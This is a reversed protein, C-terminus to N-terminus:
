KTLNRMPILTHADHPGVSCKQTMKSRCDEERSSHFAKLPPAICCQMTKSVKLPARLHSCRKIISQSRSFCGPQKEAEQAPIDHSECNTTEETLTGAELAHRPFHDLLRHPMKMEITLANGEDNRMTSTSAKRLCCNCSFQSGSNFSSTEIYKNGMIAKGSTFDYNKSQDSGYESSSQSEHHMHRSCSFLIFPPKKMKPYKITSACQELKIRIEVNCGLISQLVNAILKWSMEAKNIHEPHDFELEVLAMGQNFCISSLKGRKRLFQKLSNSKCIAIAKQWITELTEKGDQMELDHLDNYHCTCTVFHKMSDSKSSASYSDGDAGDRVQLTEDNLELDNADLSSCGESSLQLLAVTLWTVQSKSTQLQRETESLIKLAQNLQQLSAESNHREFFKRRVESSDEQFKRALIDVIINALQSILQMPDIRSRMLERARRITNSNDFSLALDLLDLLEDDSVIGILEYVLPMSIRKELLSLQDLMMEADRLSGNSKAAILDLAVREFELGEELCIKELKNAIDVEKIKSFHCRKSWSVASRPLKDLDPTTMVFVVHQPLYELNDLLTKWTDGRLLQCEDIIFVKYQSSIPHVVANKILSRFRDKRNIRLSDVKKVDEFRGTFFLVCEQCLGCPRSAELSLCNLAAAFIRSASTKGTGRPGHFIYFSSIKANSIATLLSRAVANQGILECFSKPRFKQSLTQPSELYLPYENNVLKCIKGKGSLLKECTEEYLLPKDDVDCPLHEGLKVTGLCCSIGCGQHNCNVVDVGNNGFLSSGCGRLADSVSLYPSGVPCRIDGVAARSSRIKKPQRCKKNSANHYSGETTNCSVVGNLCVESPIFHASTLVKDAYGKYNRESSLKNEYVVLQNSGCSVSGIISKTSIPFSATNGVRISTKCSTLKSSPKRFGNCLNLDSVNEVRRDAIGLCTSRSALKKAIIDEECINM